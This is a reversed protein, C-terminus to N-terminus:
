RWEEEEGEVEDVYIEDLEPHVHRVEDVPIYGFHHLPLYPPEHFVTAIVLLVRDGIKVYDGPRTGHDCVARFPQGEEIQDITVSNRKESM